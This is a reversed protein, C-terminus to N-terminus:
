EAEKQAAQQSNLRIQKRAEGLIQAHHKRKARLDEKSLGEPNNNKKTDKNRWARFSDRRLQTVADTLPYRRYMIYEYVLTQVLTYLYTWAWYFIIAVPIPGSMAASWLIWPMLIIMSFMFWFMRRPVKEDFQLTLFSRYQTIIMNLITFGIALVLIPVVLDRHERAFDTIPVGNLLAARFSTVDGPTLLGVHDVQGIRSARLVVQYLGLFFPVIIFVPLCGVLPNYKYREHLEKQDQLAAVAEEVTTAADLRAKIANAEPRMLASIRGSRVSLWNLPAIFSRVTLVLFVIAVLWAMSEDLFSAFLLHWLKLIGSVPYMFVELM